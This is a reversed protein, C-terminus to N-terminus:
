AVGFRQNIIYQEVISSDECQTVCTIHIEMGTCVKMSILMVTNYLIIIEHTTSDHLLEDKYALINATCLLRHKDVNKLVLNTFLCVDLRLAFPHNSTDSHLKLLCAGVQHSRTTITRDSIYLLIVLFQPSYCFYFTVDSIGRYLSWIVM